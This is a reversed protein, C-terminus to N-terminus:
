GLDFNVHSGRVVVIGLFGVVAEDELYGAWEDHGIVHGSGGHVFQYADAMGLEDAFDDLSELLFAEFQDGNFHLLYTAPGM